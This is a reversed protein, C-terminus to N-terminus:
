QIYMDVVEDVNQILNLMVKNYYDEFSMGSLNNKWVKWVRARFLQSMSRTDKLKLSEGKGNLIEIKIPEFKYMRDYTGDHNDSDTVATISGELSAHYNHGMKIEKPLEAKGSIRLFHSNINM